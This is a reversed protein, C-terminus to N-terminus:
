LAAQFFFFAADMSDGVFSGVGHGMKRDVKSAKECAHILNALAILDLPKCNWLWVLNFGNNKNWKRSKTMQIKDLKQFLSVNQKHQQFVEIFITKWM